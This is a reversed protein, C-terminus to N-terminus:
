PACWASWTRWHRSNARLPHTALDAKVRSSPGLALIARRSRGRVRVREWPPSLPSFARRKQHQRESESQSKINRGTVAGLMVTQTPCKGAATQRRALCSASADLTLGPIAQRQVGVCALLAPCGEDRKQKQSSPRLERPPTEQNSREATPFFYSASPSFSRGPTLLIRCARLRVGRPKLTQAERHLRARSQHAESREACGVSEACKGYRM